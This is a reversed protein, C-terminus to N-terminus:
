LGNKQVISKINIMFIKCKPKLSKIYQACLNQITELDSNCEDLSCDSNISLEGSRGVFRSKNHYTTFDFYVLFENM